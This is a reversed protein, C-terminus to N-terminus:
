GLKSVVTKAVKKGSAKAKSMLKDTIKHAKIGKVRKAFVYDKGYKNSKSYGKRGRATLPVYLAKQTKPGHAKTGQDLYNIIKSDNVIAYDLKSSGKIVAWANATEGSRKPTEKKAIARLANAQKDLERSLHEPLDKKLKAFTKQAEKDFVQVKM